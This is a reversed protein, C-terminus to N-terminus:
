RPDRKMIIAILVIMLIMHVGVPIPARVNSDSHVPKVEIKIGNYSYTDGPGVTIYVNCVNGSCMSSGSLGGEPNYTLDVHYTTGDIEVTLPHYFHEDKPLIKDYYVEGTDANYVKIEVANDEEALAYPVLSLIVIFLGTLILKKTM